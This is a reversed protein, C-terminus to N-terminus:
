FDDDREMVYGYDRPRASFNLAHAVQQAFGITPCLAVLKKKESDFVEFLHQDFGSVTAEIITQNTKYRGGRPNL